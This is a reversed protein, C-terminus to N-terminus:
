CVHIVRRAPPTSCACSSEKTKYTTARRSCASWRSRAWSRRSAQSSSSPSRASHSRRLSRPVSPSAQSWRPPSAPAPSSRHGAGASAWGGAMAGRPSNPVSRRASACSSSVKASSPSASTAPPFACRRRAFRVSVSKSPSGGSTSRRSIGDDVARVSSGCAVRRRTSHSADALPFPRSRSTPM